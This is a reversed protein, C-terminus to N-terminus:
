LQYSKIFNICNFAKNTHFSIQHSPYRSKMSEFFYYKNMQGHSYAEIYDYITDDAIPYIVVDYKHTNGSRCSM